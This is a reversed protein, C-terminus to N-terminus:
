VNDGKSAFRAGTLGRQRSTMQSLALAAQSLRLPV